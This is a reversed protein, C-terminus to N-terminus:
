LLGARHEAERQAVIDRMRAALVALRVTLERASLTHVERAVKEAMALYRESLRESKLRPPRKSREPATPRPRLTEPRPPTDRTNLGRGAFDSRRTSADKKSVM